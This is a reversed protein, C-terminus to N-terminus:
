VGMVMRKAEALSVMGGYLSSSLRGAVFHLFKERGSGHRKCYARYEARHAPLEEDLRFQQDVLYREWWEIIKTFDNGQREAHVEEHKMLVNSVKCNSPNYLTQGFTFIVGGERAAPFVAVIREWLPPYAIAIKM